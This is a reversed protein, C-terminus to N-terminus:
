PAEAAVPLSQGPALGPRGRCRLAIAGGSCAVEVWRGQVSLVTGPAASAAPERAVAAMVQLRRGRGDVIWAPAIAALASVWRVLRQASWQWDLRRDRALRRSSCHRLAAPDIPGSEAIADGARWRQLLAGVRAATHGPLRQFFYSGGDHGLPEAMPARDIVAGADIRAAMRHITCGGVGDAFMYPGPSAGAYDPLLGPHVNLWDGATDDLTRASFLVRSTITLTLAPRLAARRQRVAEDDPLWRWDIPQRRLFREAAGAALTGDALAHLRDAPRQVARRIWAAARRWAPPRPGVLGVEVGLPSWAPHAVLHRLTEIGFGPMTLIM